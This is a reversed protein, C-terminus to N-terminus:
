QQRVRKLTRQAALHQRYTESFQHSGDDRAVFYLYSVSAPYLAARISDLGPNGIPGPPLGIHHYTNYPSDVKLDDYTLRPKHVGLAYQVTACSELPRHLRLRNYFVASILPREAPIKAEKEIISALTIIEATTMHLARQRAVFGPTYVQRFRKIQMLAIEEATANGAIEYTDPFLFGEPSGARTLDQYNAAFAPNTIADLFTKSGTVGREDLIRAIDRGSVGEPFTVLTAFEQGHVLKELMWFGSKGAQLRYSGARLHRDAGALRVYLMFAYRNRILHANDLRASIGSLGLGQPITLTYRANGKVPRMELLIWVSVSLVAMACAAGVWLIWRFLNRRSPRSIAAEENLGRKIAKMVPFVRHQLFSGPM